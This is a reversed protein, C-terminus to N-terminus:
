CPLKVEFLVQEIHHREAEPLGVFTPCKRVLERLETFARETTDCTKELADRVKGQLGERPAVIGVRFAEHILVLADMLWADEVSAAYYFSGFNTRAATLLARKNGEVEADFDADMSPVFVARIAWIDVPFRFRSRVGFERYHCASRVFFAARM